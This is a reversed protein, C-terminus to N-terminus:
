YNYTVPPWESPFFWGFDRNQPPSKGLHKRWAEWQPSGERIFVQPLLSSNSPTTLIPTQPYEDAYRGQNLFTSPHPIFQVEKGKCSEVFRDVGTDFIEWVVGSKQVKALAKMAAIKAVKRPYKRWFIEQHDKPWAM